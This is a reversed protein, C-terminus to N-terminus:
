IRSGVAAVVARGTSDTQPPQLGAVDRVRAGLVAPELSRRRRSFRSPSGLPLLQDRGVTSAGRQTLELRPLPGLPTGFLPPTLPPYQVFDGAYAGSALPRRLRRRCPKGLCRYDNGHRGPVTQTALNLLNRLQKRICTNRLQSVTTSGRRSHCQPQSM